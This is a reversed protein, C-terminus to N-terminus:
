KIVKSDETKVLFDYLGYIDNNIRITVSKIFKTGDASTNMEVVPIDPTELKKGDFYFEFCEKAVDVPDLMTSTFKVQKYAIQPQDNVVNITRQGIADIKSNATGAVVKYANIIYTGADLRTGLDYAKFIVETVGDTVLSPLSTLFKTQNDSGTYRITYLYVTAGDAVGLDTNKIQASVQKDYFRMTENKVTYAGSKSQISLTFTEPKVNGPKIGTKLTYASQEPNSALIAVNGSDVDAVQFSLNYQGSGSKIMVTITGQKRGSNLAISSGKVVLVGDVFTGFSAIGTSSKTQDTQEITIPADKIEKGYQDKVTVKIELKDDAIPNVNLTQKSITATVASAKAEGLVTVKASANQVLTDGKYFLLATTGTKNPKLYFGGTPSQSGIFLVSEDAPKIKTIGEEAFTHYTTKGTAADYYKFLAEIVPNAANMSFSTGLTDTDKLYTGNDEKITYIFNQFKPEDAVVTFKEKVFISEGRDDQGIYVSVEFVVPKNAKLLCVTSGSSYADYTDTILSISPFVKDKVSKTIDIKDKNYYKIDLETPVDVQVLNTSIGLSAIDKETVSIAKFSAVQDKDGKLAVKYALDGAFDSYMTVILNDGDAKVEKILTFDIKVDGIEYYIELDSAKVNAPNSIGSVVITDLASQKVTLKTAVPTPTPTVTPVPKDEGKVTVNFSKSYITGKYTSTQYTEAKITYTGAKDFTVKYETGYSGTKKLTVNSSSCTLRRYDDDATRPMKVTISDGVKYEKGDAIGSVEFNKDANKKVTVSLIKTAITTEDKKNRVIIVVETEGRKKATAKCTKNSVSVISPDESELKVDMTKSDFGKLLKKIKVFSYYSAKKGNAKKGVCGGLYLIKSSKKLSITEAAQVPIAGIVLVLCLVVALLKMVKKM